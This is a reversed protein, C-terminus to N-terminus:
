FSQTKNNKLDYRYLRQKGDLDLRIASIAHQNPIKLPSYEGGETACLWTKSGSKINYQVIDTQGNRTGAYLITNNDMFSPQNNYGDNDSINKFNSLHFSDNKTNLDFLFIDTNPQAM